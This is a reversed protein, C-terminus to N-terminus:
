NRRHDLLSYVATRRMFKMEAIKLRRVDGEQKLTCFECDCLLSKIALTYCLKLQSQRQILNPNLVNNLIDSIKFFESTKSIM